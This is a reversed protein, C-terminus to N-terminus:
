LKTLMLIVPMTVISLITSVSIIRSALAADGKFKAAILMNNVASPACAPIMCAALLDGKLQFVFKYLCLVLVPVALLRLFSAIWLGADKLGTKLSSTILYYGTILMAVPTNLQALYFVPDGLIAPLQIRLLFLPFGILVGITGPNLLIKTWNTKKETRYLSVGYTWTVINLIIIYASILFVGKSGILAQAMPIAMFGGNSFIVCGRLVGQRSAPQNKRFAFAILIGALHTMLACGACILLSKLTDLNLEVELFAHIIVCPTVVYLLIDTLQGIGSKRLMRVKILVAGAAIMVFLIAVQVAVTIFYQAGENM